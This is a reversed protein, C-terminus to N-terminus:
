KALLRELWTLAVVHIDEWANTETCQEGLRAAHRIRHDLLRGDRESARKIGIFTCSTQYVGAKVTDPVDAWSNRKGNHTGCLISYAKTRFSPSINVNVDTRDLGDVAYRREAMHRVVCEQRIDLFLHPIGPWNLGM